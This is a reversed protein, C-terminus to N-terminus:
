GGSVRGSAKARDPKIPFRPRTGKIPCSLLARSLGSAADVAGLDVFREFRSGLSSVSTGNTEPKSYTRTDRRGDRTGRRGKRM